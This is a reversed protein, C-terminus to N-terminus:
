LPEESSSLEFSRSLETRDCAAQCLLACCLWARDALPGEIYRNVVPASYSFTSYDFSLIKRCADGWVTLRILCGLAWLFALRHAVQKAPPESTM